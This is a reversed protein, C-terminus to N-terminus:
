ESIEIKYVNQKELNQRPNEIKPNKIKLSFLICIM